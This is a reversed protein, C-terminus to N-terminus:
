SVPYKDKLIRIFTKVNGNDMRQFNRPLKRKLLWESGEESLEGDGNWASKRTAKKVRKDIMSFLASVLKDSAKFDKEEAVEVTEEIEEGKEEKFEKVWGGAVTLKVVRKHKILRKHIEPLGNEPDKFDRDPDLSDTDIKHMTMLKKFAAGGWVDIDVVWEDEDDKVIPYIFEHKFRAGKNPGSIVTWGVKFHPGGPWKREKGKKDTYPREKKDYWHIKGDDDWSVVGNCVAKFTGEYPHLGAGFGGDEVVFCTVPMELDSAQKELWVLTKTVSGTKDLIKEVRTASVGLAGLTAIARDDKLDWVFSLPVDLAKGENNRKGAIRFMLREKGDRSEKLGLKNGPRILEKFVGVYGGAPVGGASGRTKM